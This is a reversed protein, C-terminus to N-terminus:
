MLALKCDKGDKVPFGSERNSVHNSDNSDIIDRESKDSSSTISSNCPFSVSLACLTILYM